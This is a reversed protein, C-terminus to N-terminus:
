KAGNDAVSAALSVFSEAVELPMVVALATVLTEPTLERPLGDRLGRNWPTERHPEAHPNLIIRENATVLELAEHQALGAWAAALWVRALAAGPFYLLRVQSILLPNSAHPQGTRTDLTDGVELTLLAVGDNNSLTVTPRATPNPHRIVLPALADAWLRVLANDGTVLLRM